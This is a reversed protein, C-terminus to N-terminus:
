GTQFLPSLFVIILGIHLLSIAYLYTKFPQKQTKHRFHQQALLAGGSGGIFALGLLTAESIRRANKQALKKDIFFAIYAAINMLGFFGFLILDLNSQVDM